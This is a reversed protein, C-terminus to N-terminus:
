HLKESGVFYNRRKVHVQVNHNNTSFKLFIKIRNKNLDMEKNNDYTKDSLRVAIEYVTYFEYLPLTRNNEFYCAPRFLVSSSIARQFFYCAKVM